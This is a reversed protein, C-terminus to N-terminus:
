TSPSVARRPETLMPRVTRARAHAKADGVHYKIQRPGLRTYPFGRGELRDKQLRSRSRGFAVEMEYDDLLREPDQLLQSPTENVPQRRPM